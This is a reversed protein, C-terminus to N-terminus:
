VSLADLAFCVIDGVEQRTHRDKKVVVVVVVL